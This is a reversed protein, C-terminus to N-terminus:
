KAKPKGGNKKKVAGRVTVVSNRSGPPGLCIRDGDLLPHDPGIREGNVYTGTSSGEDSLVVGREDWLVRAHHFDVNQAEVRLHCDSGSGLVKEFGQTDVVLSTGDRSGGTVILVPVHPDRLDSADSM